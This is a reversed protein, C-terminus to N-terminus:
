FTRERFNCCDPKRARDATHSQAFKKVETEQKMLSRYCHSYRVECRLVTFALKQACYGACPLGGTFTLLQQQQYKNNSSFKERCVSTKNQM